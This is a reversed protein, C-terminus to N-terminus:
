EVIESCGKEGVWMAEFYFIKPDRRRHPTGVIDVWLPCHDSHASLGHVVSVNSFQACWRYNAMALDIIEM